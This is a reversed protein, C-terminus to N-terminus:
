RPFVPLAESFMRDFEALYHAFPLAATEEEIAWALPPPNQSKKMDMPVIFAASDIRYYGYTIRQSTLRIDFTAKGQWNSPTVKIDNPGNIQWQCPGLLREISERVANRIHDADRDFFKRQYAKLLDDDWMNGFCVRMKADDRQKFQDLKRHIDGVRYAALVDISRASGQEALRSVSNTNITQFDGVFTRVLQVNSQGDLSSFVTPARPRAGMAVLRDCVTRATAPLGTADPQGDAWAFPNWTLGHVDSPVAVKARPDAPDYQPIMLQTRERGHASIFLGSEFVLNDRPEHRVTDRYWTKDDATWFLISADTDDVFRLLNELTYRGGTWPITWPVPELKGRYERLIFATLWDVLQRQEGSSGIFIRM